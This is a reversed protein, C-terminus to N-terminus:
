YKNFNPIKIYKGKRKQKEEKIKDEPENWFGKLKFDTNKDEIKRYDKEENIDDITLFDLRGKKFLTLIFDFLDNKNIYKNIFKYAQEETIDNDKLDKLLSLIFKNYHDIESSSKMINGTKYSNLIDREGKTLSSEGFKNIKDIIWNLTKEDDVNECFMEFNDMM